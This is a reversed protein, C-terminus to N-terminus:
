KVEDYIKKQKTYWENWGEVKTACEYYSTYNEVVVKHLDVISISEGDIKKLPTCPETLVKVPQPFKPKVPVPTACGILSLTLILLIIKKM